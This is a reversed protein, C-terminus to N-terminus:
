MVEERVDGGTTWKDKKIGEKQMEITTRVNDMM